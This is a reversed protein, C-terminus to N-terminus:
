YNQEIERNLECANAIDDVSVPVNISKTFFVETSAAYITETVSRTPLFHPHKEYFSPLYDPFLTNGATENMARHFLQLANKERSKSPPQLQLKKLKQYANSFPGRYNRLFPLFDNEWLIFGVMLLTGTISSLMLCFIATNEILSPKISPRITIKKASSNNPLLPHYNFPIEAIPKDITKDANSLILNFGPLTMRSTKTVLNFLQYRLTLTTYTGNEVVSITQLKLGDALMGPKPLKHQILKFHHPKTIRITLPIEDGVSYGSEQLSKINLSVQDPSAAFYRGLGAAILPVILLLGIVLRNNM